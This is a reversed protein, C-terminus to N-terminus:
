RSIGGNPITVVFNTYDGNGIGSMMSKSGWLNLWNLFSGAHSVLITGKELDEAFGEARQLVFRAGHNGGLRFQHFVKAIADRL